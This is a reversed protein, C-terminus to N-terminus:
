LIENGTSMDLVFVNELRSFDIVTEVEIELSTEYELIRINSITGVPIDKPYNNNYGTTVIVDGYSLEEAARKKVYRMTLFPSDAGNGNVIGEDRTKQTRCSVYAQYDYVPIIMSTTQGVRVIRGVLGTVGGQFAVVPMDKKIGDKIGKNITIGSYLADPDKAIIEAPINKYTQEKSFNLLDRLTDNERKIDVNERQLEEYNRLQEQLADYERKLVRLENIATVTDTFFTTVSHIGSQVASVASFGATKLSVVFGETSFFLFLISFMLYVFLLIFPKRVHFFNKIKKM